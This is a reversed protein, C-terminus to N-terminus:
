LTVGNRCRAVLSNQLWYCTIKQLWCNRWLTVLSKKCRPVEAVLLLRIKWRTVLSHNKVVLLKQLLYRAFKAVLPSHYKAILFKQLSYCSIEQLSCSSCRTVLLNQLSYHTIKCHTVLVLSNWCTFLLLRFTVDGSRSYMNKNKKM